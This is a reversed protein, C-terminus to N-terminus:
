AARKSEALDEHDPSVAFRGHRETDVIYHSHGVSAGAYTVVGPVWGVAPSVRLEVPSGERFKMAAVRYSM